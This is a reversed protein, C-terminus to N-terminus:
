KAPIKAADGMAGIATSAAQEIAKLEQSEAAILNALTATTGSAGTTPPGGLGQITAAHGSAPAGFAIASAIVGGLALGCARVRTRKLCQVM